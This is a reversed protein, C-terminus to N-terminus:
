CSRPMDSHRGSLRCSNRPDPCPDNLLTDSGSTATLPSFINLFVDHHRLGSLISEYVRSVWSSNSPRSVVFVYWGKVYVSGYVCPYCSSTWGQPKTSCFALGRFLRIVLNWLAFAFRLASFRFAPQLDLCAVLEDPLIRSSVCALSVM